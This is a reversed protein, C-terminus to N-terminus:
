VPASACASGVLSRVQGGAVLDQIRQEARGIGVRHQAQALAEPAVARVGLVGRVLHLERGAQRLTEVRGEVEHAGAAAEPALFLGHPERRAGVVEALGVGVVVVQNGADLREHAVRGEDLGRLLHVVARHDHGVDHVRVQQHRALLEGHVGVHRLEAARVALAVRLPQHHHHQV